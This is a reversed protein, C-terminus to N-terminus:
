PNVTRYKRRAVTLLCILHVLATIFWSIPYSAYLIEPTHDAAFVTMIWLIRFGCAGLLSVTMPMVSFGMGRLSGVVVEMLGCLFYTPFIISMRRLGYEIVANDDTYISLLQRGFHLGTLGMVLGTVTVCLGCMWLVKQVRGMKKAGTNQGTFSLSTQHFSNMSNYVFGELSCTATNGAVAVAGFSNVSSQILVNSISFVAGQFGAPLGVRAIRAVMAKDLCLKKLELRCPGSNKILCKVILAASVAQSIITAWAVGRVNMNFGIVFILNLIINIVGATFLYYLPRKTDGVARLIAAGFNYLLMVPMGLFYIKMYSVSLPLIDGPTGMLKLMPGCVIQGILLLAAGCVLSLTISTHLAKSLEKHRGAGFYHAIAVNAGVSLGMFVNILLNILSATAGVAGLANAGAYRGVVVMDATNFLLQLIGAAILPLAYRVIKGFLPGNLMDVEYKGAM